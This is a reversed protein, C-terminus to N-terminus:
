RRAREEVAQRRRIQARGQLLERRALRHRDQPQLRIQRHRPELQPRRHFTSGDLLLVQVVGSGSTDIRENYVVSKAAWAVGSTLADISLFTILLAAALSAGAWSRSFTQM